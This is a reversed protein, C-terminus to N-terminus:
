RKLSFVNWSQPKLRATFLSGEVGASDNPKPSVADPDDKSNIKKRDADHLESAEAVKLGTLGRLDVSLDMDDTTSRNLAFIAVEGTEPNHIGTALLHPM